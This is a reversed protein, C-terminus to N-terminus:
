RLALQLSGFQQLFLATNGSVPKTIVVNDSFTSVRVDEHVTLRTARVHALILRRLSGLNKPDTGARVIHSRWGLVDYFIVLRREYVPNGLYDALKESIASRAEPAM